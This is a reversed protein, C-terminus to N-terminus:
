GSIHCVRRFAGCCRRGHLLLREDHLDDDTSVEELNTKGKLNDDCSGYLMGSKPQRCEDAVIRTPYASPQPTPGSMAWTACAVEATPEGHMCGGNNRLSVTARKTHQLYEVLSALARLRLPVQVVELVHPLHAAELELTGPCESSYQVWAIM